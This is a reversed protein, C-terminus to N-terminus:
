KIHIRSFTYKLEGLRILSFQGQYYQKSFIYKEQIVISNSTRTFCTAYKGLLVMQLALM